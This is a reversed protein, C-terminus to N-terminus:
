EYSIDERKLNKSKCLGELKKLCKYKKNKAAQESSLEFEKQIVSMKKKDFYFSRLVQQCDKSLEKLLEEISNTTDLIFLDDENIEYSKEDQVRQLHMKKNKRLQDYWLNRAIAQIYTDISSEERFKNELAHKYFVIMAEQFVDFAYASDGGNSTIFKEVKPYVKKYIQKLALNELQKDNSRLNSLLVQETLHSKMYLTLNITLSFNKSLQLTVM